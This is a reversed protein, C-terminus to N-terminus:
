GALSTVREVPAGTAGTLTTVLVEIPEQGTVSLLHGGPRLVARVPVGLLAAARVLVRTTDPDGVRVAVRDAGGRGPGAALLTARWAAVALASRHRRARPTTDAGAPACLTAAGGKGARCLTARILDEARRPVTVRHVRYRHRGGSDRSDATAVPAIYAIAGVLREAAAASDFEALFGPAPPGLGRLAASPRALTGPVAEAPRGAVRVLMMAEFAACTADIPAAALAHRFALDRSRIVASVGIRRSVRTAEGGPADGGLGRGGGHVTRPPHERGSPM